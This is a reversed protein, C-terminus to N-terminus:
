KCDGMLRLPKNSTGLRLVFKTSVLIGFFGKIGKWRWARKGKKNYASIPQPSKQNRRYRAVKSRKKLGQEIEQRHQGTGLSVFVDPHKLQVDPWLLKRERWAVRVPNNHYLAGDLYIRENTECFFPKFFSPAASTAAAAEWIKLSLAPDDATEFVYSSDKADERNFNAIVWPQDGSGSTAVVAVKTAYNESSDHKGGFLLDTGFEDRLVNHLPTTKWKSGHSLTTLEELLWTEHFERQTFAKNCVRKFTSICDDLRWQRAVMGLAIIGGTSFKEDACSNTHIDFAFGAYRTGVVM